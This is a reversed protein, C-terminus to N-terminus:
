ADDGRDGYCTNSCDACGGFTFARQHEDPVHELEHPLPTGWVARQIPQDIDGNRIRYYVWIVLIELARALEPCAIRIENLIRPDDFSCALCDGSFGFWDYAPTVPIDHEDVFAEKESDLLGHIPAIWTLRPKRDGTAGVDIAGDGLNAARRNSEAHRGGSIFGIRGAFSSYVGDWTDLKRNVFEPWHGGTGPSGQSKAPWGHEIIRHALMRGDKQNRVEIYPLGHEACFRQVTQQTQPFTTGTNTHVVADIDPLGHKERNLQWATIASLSDKGGSALGFVYDLDLSTAEALVADIKEEKTAFSSQRTQNATM